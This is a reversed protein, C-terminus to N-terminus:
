PIDFFGWRITQQKGELLDYLIQDYDNLMKKSEETLQNRDKVISKSSAEVYMGRKFASIFSEMEKMFATYGSIPENLIDSIYNMFYFPSIIDLENKLKESDFNAYFLVPTEFQDLANKKTFVEDTYIGPLHDGWFVVLTDEAILNIQEIFYKFDQDSYSLGQYYQELIEINENIGEEEVKFMLDKYNDHYSKHGHMTVLHIFDKEDTQKIQYLIEEYASLDSIYENNEHYKINEMIEDYILNEFGLSSYVDQRKYMTTNYPHIATTRYNKNKLYSVINPTREMLHNMQIYPTSINSALPEISISTLAEFEANATGGGYGSILLNGSLYEESLKEIYPIPSSSLNIRELNNPNSFSENMIFIINPNTKEENEILRNNEEAIKTYKAVIEDIHDTTYDSPKEIPKGPLNYLFGPIFGNSQYNEQQSWHIWEAHPNFAARVINGPQNFNYFAVMGVSILVFSIGSFISHGISGYKMRISWERRILLVSLTLMVLVFVISLIVVKFDIMGMIEPLVKIMDFDSPYIPEGRILMKQQNAISLGTFGTFFLSAAGWKSRLFSALWLYLLFMFGIELWFITTVQSALYEKYVSWDWDFLSVRLLSSTIFTIVLGIVVISIIHILTHKLIEKNELYIKRMFITVREGIKISLVHYRDLNFAGM